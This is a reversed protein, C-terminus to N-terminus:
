YLSIWGNEYPTSSTIEGKVMTVAMVPYAIVTLDPRALKIGVALPLARGHLGNFYNVGPLPADQCGARNGLHPRHKQNPIPIEQLAKELADRIAFIVCGPCWAIDTKQVM